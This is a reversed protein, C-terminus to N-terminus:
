HVALYVFFPSHGIHCLGGGERFNLQRSDGRFHSVLRTELSASAESCETVFLFILRRPRQLDRVFRIWRRYPLHTHGWKWRRYGRTLCRDLVEICHWFAADVDSDRAQLSWRINSVPLTSQYHSALGTFHSWAAVDTPLGAAIMEVVTTAGHAAAPESAAEAGPVALESTVPAPVAPLAAPPALLDPMQLSSGGPPMAREPSPAAVVPQVIVPAAQVHAIEEDSDFLASFLRRQLESSM